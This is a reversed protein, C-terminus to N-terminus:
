RFCMRLFTIGGDPPMRFPASFVRTKEAGKYVEVAEFRLFFSLVGTVRDQSNTDHTQYEASFHSSRATHFQFPTPSVERRQKM